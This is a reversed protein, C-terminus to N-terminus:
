RLHQSLNQAMQILSRPIKDIPVDPLDSLSYDLAAKSRKQIKLMPKPIQPNQPEQKVRPVQPELKIRPVSAWLKQAYLVLSGMYGAWTANAPELEAEQEPDLFEENESDSDQLGGLSLDPTFDVLELEQESYQRRSLTSLIEPTINESGKRVSVILKALKKGLGPIM